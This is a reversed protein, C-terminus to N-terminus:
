RLVVNVVYNDSNVDCFCFKQFKRDDSMFVLHRTNGTVTDQWYKNKFMVICWAILGTDIVKQSSTNYNVHSCKCQPKKEGILHGNYQNVTAVTVKQNDFCNFHIGVNQKGNYRRASVDHPTIVGETHNTVFDVM